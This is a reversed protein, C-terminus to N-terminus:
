ESFISSLQGLLETDKTYIQVRHVKNIIEGFCKITWILPTPPFMFVLADISNEKQAKNFLKLYWSHDNNFIRHYDKPLYDLYWLGIDLAYYSKFESSYPLMFLVKKSGAINAKGEFEGMYALPPSMQAIDSDLFGSHGTELRTYTYTGMSNKEVEILTDSFGKHNLNNKGGGVSKIKEIENYEKFEYNKANLSKVSLLINDFSFDIGSIGKPEYVLNRVKKRILLNAINLETLVTLFNDITNDSVERKLLSASGLFNAERITKQAAIYELYSEPIEKEFWSLLEKKNKFYLEPNPM